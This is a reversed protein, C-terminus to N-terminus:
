ASGLGTGEQTIMAGGGGQFEALRSAVRQQIADDGFFAADVGEQEATYDEEGIKEMFLDEADRISEFSNWMTEEALGLRRINEARTQTLSLDGKQLAKAGIIAADMRNSNQGWTTTGAQSSWDDDPDLFISALNSEASTGYWDGMVTAIEEPLNNLAFEVKNFREDLEETGVGAELLQQVLNTQNVDWNYANLKGQLHVEYDRYQEFSPVYVQEGAARRDWLTAIAPFREMIENFVWTGDENKNYFEQYIDEPAYDPSTMYGSAKVWLNEADTGSIGVSEMMIIFQDHISTSEIVDVTGGTGDGELETDGLENDNLDIEEYLYPPQTAPTTEVPVTPANLANKTQPGYVGDVDLGSDQQFQIVAQETAPGFQGDAGSAGLDYGLAILANQLDRVEQGSSGRRLM